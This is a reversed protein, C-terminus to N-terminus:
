ADHMPPLTSHGRSLPVGTLQGHVSWGCSPMGGRSRRAWRGGDYEVYKYCFRRRSALLLWGRRWAAGDKAHSLRLLYISRVISTETRYGTYVGQLLRFCAERQKLFHKFLRDMQLAIWDIANCLEGKCTLPLTCDMCLFFLCCM